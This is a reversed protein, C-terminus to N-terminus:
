DMVYVNEEGVTATDAEARDKTESTLSIGIKALPASVTVLVSGDVINRIIEISESLRSEGSEQGLKHGQVRLM